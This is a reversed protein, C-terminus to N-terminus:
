GAEVLSVPIGLDKTPEGIDLPTISRLMVFNEVFLIGVLAPM